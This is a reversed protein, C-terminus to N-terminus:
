ANEKQRRERSARMGDAIGQAAAKMLEDVFRKAEARTELVGMCAGAPRFGASGVPDTVVWFGPSSEAIEFTRYKFKM